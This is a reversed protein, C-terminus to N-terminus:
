DTSQAKYPKSSKTWVETGRLIKNFGQIYPTDLIQMYIDHKDYRVAKEFDIYKQNRKVNTSVTGSTKEFIEGIFKQKIGLSDLAAMRKPVTGNWDYFKSGIIDLKLINQVFALLPYDKIVERPLNALAKLQFVNFKPLESRNFHKLGAYIGINSVKTQSIEMLNAIEGQPLGWENTLYSVIDRIDGSFHNAIGLIQYINKHM